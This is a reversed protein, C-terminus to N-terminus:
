RCTRIRDLHESVTESRSATEGTASRVRRGPRGALNAEVQLPQRTRVWVSPRRTGARLIHGLRRVRLGEDAFSRPVKSRDHARPLPHLARSFHAPPHHANLSGGEVGDNGEQNQPNADFTLPKREGRTCTVIVLPERNQGRPDGSRRQKTEPRRGTVKVGTGPSAESSLFPTPALGVALGGTDPGDACDRSRPLPENGAHGPDPRRRQAGRLRPSGRDRGGGGRSEAGAGPRGGGPRWQLGGTAARRRRRRPPPRRRRPTPPRRGTM